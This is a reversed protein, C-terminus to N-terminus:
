RIQEPMPSRCRTSRTDTSTSSSLSGVLGTGARCSQGMNSTAHWRWRTRALPPMAPRTLAKHNNLVQKGDTLHFHYRPM